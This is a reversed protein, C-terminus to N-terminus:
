DRILLTMESETAVWTDRLQARADYWRSPVGHFRQEYKNKQGGGSKRLISRCNSGRFSGATGLFSLEVELWVLALM